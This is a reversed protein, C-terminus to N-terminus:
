SEYHDAVLTCTPAGSFKLEWRYGTTPNESLRIEITEGTVLEIERGNQSEDIQLM